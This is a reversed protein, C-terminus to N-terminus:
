YLTRNIEIRTNLKFFTFGSKRYNNVDFIRNDSIRDFVEGTLWGFRLM